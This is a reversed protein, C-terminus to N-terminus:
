CKMALRAGCLHLQIAPRLASRAAPAVKIIACMSPFPRRQFTLDDDAVAAIWKRFDSVTIDDSLKAQGGAEAICSLVSSRAMVDSDIVDYFTLQGSNVHFPASRSFYVPHACGPM